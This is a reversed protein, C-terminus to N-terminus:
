QESRTTYLEVQLLTFFIVFIPLIDIFNSVRIIVENNKAVISNIACGELQYCRYKTNVINAREGRRDVPSLLPRQLQIRQRDTQPDTHEPCIKQNRAATVHNYRTHSDFKGIKITCCHTKNPFITYHHSTNFQMMHYHVTFHKITSSM